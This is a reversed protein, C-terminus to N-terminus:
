VAEVSPPLPGREVRVHYLAGDFATVDAVRQAPPAAEILDVMARM